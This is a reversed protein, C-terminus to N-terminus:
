MNQCKDELNQMLNRKSLVRKVELITETKDEIELEQLEYKNKTNLFQIIIAAEKPMQGLEAKVKQIDELALKILDIKKFIVQSSPWIDNVFEIINAWLQEKALGFPEKLTLDKEMAKLIESMKAVKQVEEKHMIKAIKYDTELSTVKEKLKNM